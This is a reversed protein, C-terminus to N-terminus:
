RSPGPAGPLRRITIVRYRREFDELKERRVAMLESCAHVVEEPSIALAVHSRRAPGLSVAAVLDAPALESRRLRTGLLRQARSNRPLVVGVSLFSRWILGSCDMGESGTGGWVYPRGLQSLAAELVAGPEWEPAGDVGPELRREAPGLRYTASREVWGVAEGPARVLFHSPFAGVLAAPPDGPLLETTLEPEGGGPFGPRRRVRLASGEAHLAVRARREALVLIRRQAEPWLEARLREVATLQSPIGVSGVLGAPSIRVRILPLGYRARAEAALHALAAELAPRRGSM